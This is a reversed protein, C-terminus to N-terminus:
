AINHIKCLSRPDAVSSLAIVHLELEGEYRREATALKTETDGDLELVPPNIPSDIAHPVDIAKVKDEQTDM